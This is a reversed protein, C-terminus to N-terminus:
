ILPICLCSFVGKPRGVAQPGRPVRVAWNQETFAVTECTNGLCIWRREGWRIRVPVGAWPGDGVEVVIRGHGTAVVGCGPRGAVCCCLEIELIMADSREDAILHFGDLGM